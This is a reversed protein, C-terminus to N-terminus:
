VSNLFSALESSSTDESLSIFHSNSIPLRLTAHIMQRIHNELLLLDAPISSIFIVAVTCGRKPVVIGSQAFSVILLSYLEEFITNKIQERLNITVIQYTSLFSSIDSEFSFTLPTCIFKSTADSIIQEISKDIEFITSPMISSIDILFDSTIQPLEFQEDNYLAICLIKTQGNAIFKLFSLSSLTDKSEDSFFQYFDSISNTTKSFTHWTDSDPVTGNWFDRTSISRAITDADFGSAHAFVYMGDIVSFIGAHIFGYKKCISSFYPKVIDTNTIKTLLGM